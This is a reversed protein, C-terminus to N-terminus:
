YYCLCREFTGLGCPTLRLYKQCFPGKLWISVRGIQRGKILPKLSESRNFHLLPNHKQKCITYVNTHGREIQIGAQIYKKHQNNSVNPRHSLEQLIKSRLANNFFRRTELDFKLLLPPMFMYDEVDQKFSNFSSIGIFTLM